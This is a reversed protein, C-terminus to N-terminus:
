RSENAVGQLVRTKGHWVKYLSVGFVVFGLPTTVYYLLVNTQWRLGLAHAVGYIVLATLPMLLLALYNKLPPPQREDVLLSERKEIQHNRRLAMYVILLLVPLVIVAIPAVPITYFVFYLLLLGAVAIKAIRGMKFATINHDYIWYAVIVLLTTIGAYAAFDLPPTIIQDPENWWMIAWLGYFVGIAVAIKLTAGISTHLAKRVAYWGVWVSLLAHWALGTFSISMPLDAYATQVILGEGLWGFIAGALFLAWLTRVRFHQIIMLFAFALLSYMLWTTVYDPLTDTPKVQAWFVNESYFMLIYGCALVSLLRKPM